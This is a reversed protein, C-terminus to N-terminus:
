LSLISGAFLPMGRYSSVFYFPRDVEFEIPEPGSVDGAEPFAAIVTVSKGDVGKPAFEFETKQLCIVGTLPLSTVFREFLPTRIGFQGLYPTYDIQSILKFYPVYGELAATKANDEFELNAESLSIQELTVGEDPLIITMDTVSIGFRMAQYGDGDYYRYLGDIPQCDVEDISEGYYSAFEGDITLAEERSDILSVGSYCAAAADYDSPIEFEPMPMETGSLEDLVAQADDKYTKFSSSINSVGIDALRSAEEENVSVNGGIAQLFAFCRLSSNRGEEGPGSPEYKFDFNLSRVLPLYGEETIGLESLTKESGNSALATGALSLALGLPSYVYNGDYKAGMQAYHLSTSALLRNEEVEPLEQLPKIDTLFGKPSSPACGCVLLALPLLAFRKTKM